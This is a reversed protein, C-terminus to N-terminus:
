KALGAKQEAESARLYLPGDFDKLPAEGAAIKEETIAFLAETAVIQVKPTLIEVDAKQAKILASLKTADPGCVIIKKFQGAAEIVKQVEHDGDALIEKAESYDTLNAYYCGKNADIGSLVPLEFDKFEYSYVALSSIGYLPANSAMQLAKLASIALRLGTFSGPGASLTLYDLELATTEVKQLVYEIAPVINESQKMGIDLILTCTKDDNKASITLKSIAGDIALAKM